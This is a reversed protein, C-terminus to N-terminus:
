DSGDQHEIRRKGRVQQFAAQLFSPTLGSVVRFVQTAYIGLRNTIYCFKQITSVVGSEVVEAPYTKNMMM